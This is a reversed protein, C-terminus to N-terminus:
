HHEMAMSVRPPGNQGFHRASELGHFSAMAILSTSTSPMLPSSNFTAENRGFSVEPPHEILRTVIVDSASPLHRACLLCATFIEQTNPFSYSPPLLSM